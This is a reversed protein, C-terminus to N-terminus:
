ACGCGAGVVVLFPLFDLFHNSVKGEVGPGVFGRVLYTQCLSSSAM